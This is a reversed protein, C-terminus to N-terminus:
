CLNENIHHSYTKYTSDLANETLYCQAKILKTFMRKLPKLIFVQRFSSKLSSNRRYRVLLGIFTVGGEAPLETHTFM